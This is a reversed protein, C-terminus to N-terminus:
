FDLEIQKEPAGLQEVIFTRLESDPFDYFKEAKSVCDYLARRAFNPLVKFADHLRYRTARWKAFVFPSYSKYCAFALLAHEASKCLEFTAKTHGFASLSLEAQFTEWDGRRILMEDRPAIELQKRYSSDNPGFHARFISEITQTIETFRPALEAFALNSGRDGFRYHIVRACSILADLRNSTLGHAAALAAARAFADVSLTYLDDVTLTQRTGAIEGPTLETAGLSQRRRMWERYICGLEILLLVLRVPEDIEGASEDFIKIGILASEEAEELLQLSRGKIQLNAPSGSSRRKAEALARYGLGQGRWDGTQAFIDIARRAHDVAIESSFQRIYVEALTNVSLAVPRQPGYRERVRLGDRVATQAGGYDGIEALAFGLNNTTSAWEGNMKLADWLPLAERYAVIARHLRGQVRFIYGLNNYAAALIGVWRPYKEIPTLREIAGSILKEAEPYNGKNGEVLGKWSDLEAEALLGGPRIISDFLETALRQALPLAEENQASNSLLEIWRVAEDAVVDAYSLGEIGDSADRLGSEEVFARMEARLLASLEVDRSSIAEEAYRFHANFGRFANWRLRYFVDEIIASRVESRLRNIEPANEVIEQYNSALPRFLEDIQKELLRVRGEYYGQLRTFIREKESDTGQAFAHTQLIQYMEDHLFIRQDKPREKVFSLGQIKQWADDFDSPDLGSIEQLLSQTAGKRLWGLIKVLRDAPALRQSLLKIFEIGLRERVQARENVNMQMAVAPPLTFEKMHNGESVVMFDIALALLIPRVTPIEGDDRLVYFITKRMDLPIGTVRRAVWRDEEGGARKLRDTVAEFYVLAEEEQLGKLDVYHYGPVRSKLEQALSGKGPRGALLVSLNPTESLLTCLWDVTGVQAEQVGIREAIPNRQLDLKEATDLGFVVRKSRGLAALDTSFSAITHDHLDAIEAVAHPRLARASQLKERNERYVPFHEEQPDLVRCVESVLGEITNVEAHYLDVLESAVWLSDTQELLKKLLHTLIRTKGIGGEGVIHILTSSNASMVMEVVAAVERERGVLDPTARASTFSEGRFEQTAM